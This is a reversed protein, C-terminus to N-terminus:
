KKEQEPTKYSFLSLSPFLNQWSLHYRILFTEKKKESKEERESTQEYTTEVMAGSRILLLFSTVYCVDYFLSFVASRLENYVDNQLM